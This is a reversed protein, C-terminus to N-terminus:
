KHLRQPTYRNTALVRRMHRAIKARAHTLQAKVTGQPLGLVQATEFISLGDVVRLRFTRRLSPSLLATCERLHASLESGRCADEPSPRPDALRESVSYKREEGIQEDLPMHILRPRKRLQMRACNRVITTLWTSMESQGRFQDIHKYAALLAEQVADEADAANGLLRLACRYFSPLRVSLVAQLELAATGGMELHKGRYADSDAQSMSNRMACPLFCTAQWVFVAGNDSGAFTLAAFQTLRTVRTVRTRPNVSRRSACRLRSPRTEACPESFITPYADSHCEADDLLPRLRVEDERLILIRRVSPLQM